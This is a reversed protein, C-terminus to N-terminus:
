EAEPISPNIDKALNPSREVMIERPVKRVGGGKEEEELSGPYCINLRRTSDWLDRRSIKPNKKKM